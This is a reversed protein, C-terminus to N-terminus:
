HSACSQIRHFGVNKWKFFFIYFYSLNQTCIKTHFVDSHIILTASYLSSLAYDFTSEIIYGTNSLMYFYILSKYSYKQYINPTILYILLKEIYKLHWYYHSLVSKFKLFNIFRNFLM